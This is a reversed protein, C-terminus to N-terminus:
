FDSLEYVITFNQRNSLRVMHIPIVCIAAFGIALIAFREARKMVHDIRKIDKKLVEEAEELRKTAAEICELWLTYDYIDFRGM